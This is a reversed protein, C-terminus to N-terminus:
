DLKEKELRQFVRFKLYSAILSASVSVVLLVRKIRWCTTTSMLKWSGFLYGDTNARCSLQIEPTAPTFTSKWVGLWKHIMKQFLLYSTWTVVRRFLIHKATRRARASEMWGFKQFNWFHPYTTLLNGPLTELFDTLQYIESFPTMWGFIGPFERLFILDSVSVEPTM